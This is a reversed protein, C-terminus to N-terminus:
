ILVLAAVFGGAQNANAVFMAGPGPKSRPIYGVSFLNFNLNVTEFLIIVLVPAYKPPWQPRRARSPQRWIDGCQPACL